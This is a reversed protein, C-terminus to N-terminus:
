PSRTHDNQGYQARTRLQQEWGIPDGAKWGEAMFAPAAGSHPKADNKTGLTQAKEGCASLCGVVTLALALKTLTHSMM